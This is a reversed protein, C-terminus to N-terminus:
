LASPCLVSGRSRILKEAFSCARCSGSLLLLADSSRTSVLTLLRAERPVMLLAEPLGRGGFRSSLAIAFLRVEKVSMAEMGLMCLMGLKSCGSDGASSSCSSSWTDASMSAMDSTSGRRGWM